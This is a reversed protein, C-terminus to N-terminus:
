RASTAQSEDYYTEHRLRLEKASLVFLNRDSDIADGTSGFACANLIAEIDDDTSLAAKMTTQQQQQQQSPAGDGEVDWKLKSRVLIFYIRWFQEEKLVRPTLKYRLHNMEPVVDLILSCHKEQM